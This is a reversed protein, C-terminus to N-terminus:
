KVKEIFDKSMKLDEFTKFLKFVKNLGVREMMSDINEHLGFIFVPAVKQHISILTALGTSDIAELRTADIVIAKPHQVEFHDWVVSTFDGIRSIHVQGMVTIETYNKYDTLTVQTLNSKENM